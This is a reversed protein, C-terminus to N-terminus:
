TTLQRGDSVLQPLLQYVSGFRMTFADAAVAAPFDVTVLVADEGHDYKFRTPEYGNVDLWEAIAMMTGSFEAAAIRTTVSPM